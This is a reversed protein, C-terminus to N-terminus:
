FLTITMGVSTAVFLCVFCIRDLITAILMWEFHIHEENVEEEKSNCVDVATESPTKANNNSSKLSGRHFSRIAMNRLVVDTQEKQNHKRSFPGAGLRVANQFCFIVALWKLFIVRIWSPVRQKMNGRYYVYLVCVTMLVSVSLIILVMALYSGILPPVNSQPLMDAVVLQFVTLALLVTLSLSLKEGSDVPLIFTTHAIIILVFCPLLVNYLYFGPKRILKIRVQIDVFPEPCCEYYEVSRNCSGMEVHWEAQESESNLLKIRDSTLNLDLQNGNYAWSGFQLTCIQTDWPFRRVDINCYTTVVAPFNYMVLGTHYVTLRVIQNSML